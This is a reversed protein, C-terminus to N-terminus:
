LSFIKFFHYELAEFICVKSWEKICDFCFAHRCKEPEGVLQDRLEGLCIPCDVSISDKEGKKESNLVQSDDECKETLPSTKQSDNIRKQVWAKDIGNKGVDSPGEGSSADSGDAIEEEEDESSDSTLELFRIAYGFLYLHLDGFAYTAM